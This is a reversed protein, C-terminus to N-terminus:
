DTRNANVLSLQARAFEPGSKGALGMRALLEAKTEAQTSGRRERLNRMGERSRLRKHSELLSDYQSSLEAISPEVERLRRALTSCESALTSCDRAYRAALWTSCVCIALALGLMGAVLATM